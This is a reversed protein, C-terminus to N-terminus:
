KIGAETAVGPCRQKLWTVAWKRVMPDKDHAAGVWADMVDRDLRFQSLTELCSVAFSRVLPSEDNKSVRILAPIAPRAFEEGMAAIGKVAIARVSEADFPRPAYNVISYPLHKWLKLYLKDLDTGRVKLAEIFVPLANTDTEWKMHWDYSVANTDVVFQISHLGGEQQTPNLHRVWFGYPKGLYTPGSQKGCRMQWTAVSIMGVLLLLLVIAIRLRKNM